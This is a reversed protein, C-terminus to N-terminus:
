RAGSERPRDPPAWLEAKSKIRLLGPSRHFLMQRSEVGRKLFFAELEDFLVPKDPYTFRKEELLLHSWADGVEPRGDFVEGKVRACLFMACSIPPVKWMCGSSGLFVCRQTLNPRELVATLARSEEESSHVLNIVHDAFFTIISEFGCCASLNTDFCLKGCLSRFHSEFLEGVRGRFELYPEVSVRLLEIEKEPLVSLVELISLVTALQDRNYESIEAAARGTL